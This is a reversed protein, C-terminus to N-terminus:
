KPYVCNWKSNPIVCYHCLLEHTCKTFPLEITTDECILRVLKHEFSIEGNFKGYRFYTEENHIYLSRSVMALIGYSTKGEFTKQKKINM